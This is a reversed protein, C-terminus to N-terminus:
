GDPSTRIKLDLGIGVFIDDSFTLALLRSPGPSWDVGNSSTFISDYMLTSRPSWYSVFAVFIGNGYRVETLGFDVPGLIRSTWNIGDSSALIIAPCPTCPPPPDLALQPCGCEDSGRGVVVFINNGYTVDFLASTIGSVRKTWTVGDQSTLITGKEGVVVFTSNGHTVRYLNSTVGSTRTIWTVGDQSTLITGKEGVAVFIGNGYIAGSLYSTVGSTTTM